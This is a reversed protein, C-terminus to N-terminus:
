QRKIYIKPAKMLGYAELQYENVYNEGMPTFCADNIVMRKEGVLHLPGLLNRLSGYIYIRIKNRGIKISKTIDKKRECSWPIEYIDENICVSACIGKFEGIDILIRRNEEAKYTFEDYYCVSGPYHKLGQKVWNGVELTKPLSVIEGDENVGFDGILYCNELEMKNQYKCYVHITNVGSNLRHIRVKEFSKDIYYGDIEYIKEGNCFLDYQSADEIVFCVNSKPLDRVYFQLELWLGTGNNKNPTDIWQYRQEIGNHYIQKMSLKSRIERQANWIETSESWVGGELKYKCYDLVLANEMDYSAKFQEPFVKLLEFDGKSFNLKEDSLKYKAKLDNKVKIDNKAKLDNKDRLNNNFTLKDITIMENRTIGNNMINNKKLSTENNMKYFYFLKSEAKGFSSVFHTGTNENDMVLEKISGELANWEEVKKFAGTHINVFYENERDNNVIFVLMGDNTEKALTLIHAAEESGGLTISVTRPLIRELASIVEKEEKVTICNKHSILHDLCKTEGEIMFPPKGLIILHGGSELFKILLEYTSQYITDVPPLIVVPYSVDKVQFRGNQVGGYESIITEDGLDVDYHMSCLYKIFQNYSEGYENLKPIDRENRRVPNGYPSTGLLSWVTSMPHLLLINRIIKGQSLMVNLRAFYDEVVKNKEWWPEQYNFCPPYDRKRCGKISYLALHQCRQNIGLVYQWDGIWKQGEFTFDWGTCGYTETITIEKSFQNAVSSCQKVTIYENTQETLLDIGPVHQYVYHPMISGNVRACLGLKDEQLFHGTYAMGNEECWESIVKSYSECYRQSITRWYDHRIKRSKEGEFYIFPLIEYIDYGRKEYFYLDFDYTWPIWGRKHHFSAHRDALSPEDTFIGPITKGFDEGVLEKYKEHTCHIFYRTCDPNLNDPPAENNFWPSKDSIELRAILLDAKRPVFDQLNMKEISIIMDEKEEMWYLALINKEEKIKYYVEKSPKRIVELTLGKCSFKDGGNRTVKGGATGSPWRDEDYLWAYMGQKKAETVAAKICSKWKEGMYTTELGERSHMFFGGIGSKKMSRIQDVIESEELTSNWAWFPLSRSKASPNKFDMRLMNNEKFSNMM